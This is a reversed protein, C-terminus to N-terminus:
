LNVVDIEVKVFTYIDLHKLSHFYVAIAKKPQPNLERRM